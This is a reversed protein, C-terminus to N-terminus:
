IIIVKIFTVEEIYFRFNIFCKSNSINNSIGTKCCFHKLTKIILLNSIILVESVTVLHYSVDGLM